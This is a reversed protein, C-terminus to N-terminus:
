HSQHWDREADKRVQREYEDLDVPSPKTARGEPLPRELRRRRGLFSIVALVTVALSLYLM